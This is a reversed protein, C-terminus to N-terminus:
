RSYVRKFFDRVITNINEVDASITYERDDMGIIEYVECRKDEFIQFELYGNPEYNYELQIKGIEYLPFVKPQFELNNILDRVVQYAKRSFKPYKFGRNENKYIETLKQLNERRTPQM